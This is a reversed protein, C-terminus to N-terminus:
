VAPFPPLPAPQPLPNPLPMGVPSLSWTVHVTGPIPAGVFIWPPAQQNGFIPVDMSGNVVPDDANPQADLRFDITRFSPITVTIGNQSSTVTDFATLNLSYECAGGTTHWVLFANSGDGVTVPARAFPPAVGQTDITSTSGSITDVQREHYSATGTVQGALDGDGTTPDWGGNAALGAGTISQNLTFSLYATTETTYSISGGGPQSVTAAGAYSYALMGNWGQKWKLLNGCTCPTTSPDLRIKLPSPQESHNSLVLYAAQLGCIPGKSLDSQHLWKWHGSIDAIADVDMGSPVRSLDFAVKQIGGSVELHIYRASLPEILLPQKQDQATEITYPIPENLELLLKPNTADTPSVDDPFAPDQVSYRPALPDDSAFTKNLNRVAFIHFNEKFNLLDNIVTNFSQFSTWSEMGRWVQAISKAGVQQQMFFPWIFAWYAHLGESTHTLPLAYGVQSTFGSHGAMESWWGDYVYKKPNPGFKTQAWVASADVFWFLGQPSGTYEANHADQLLHFFEHVISSIFKDSEKQLTDRNLLIFGSLTVGDFCGSPPPGPVPPHDKVCTPITRAEKGKLGVTDKGGPIGQRSIELTPPLLYFDIRSDTNGDGEGQLDPKPEGGMFSTMKGWLSNVVDVTKTGDTMAAAFDGNCQVWVIFLKSPFAVWNDKAEPCSSSHPQFPVAYAALSFRSSPATQAIPLANFISDPHTPRVLFPHLQRWMDSSLQDKAGYAEPILRSDEGSGAGVFEQPLLSDGFLAYARYLLSTGYDIRGSQLAAAILDQSSPPGSPAPAGPLTINSTPTPTSQHQVPPQDNCAVVLVSLLLVVPLLHRFPAFPAHPTAKVRTTTYM